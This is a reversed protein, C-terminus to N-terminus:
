YKPVPATKYQGAWYRDWLNEVEERGDQSLRNYNITGFSNDFQYDYVLIKDLKTNLWSLIEEHNKPLDSGFSDTTYHYAKNM